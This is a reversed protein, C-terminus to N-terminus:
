IKCTKFAQRQWDINGSADHGATKYQVAGQRIVQVAVDSLQVSGPPCKNGNSLLLIGGSRILAPGHMLREGIPPTQGHRLFVRGAIDRELASQAALWGVFGAAALLVLVSGAITGVSNKKGVLFYTAEMEKMMAQTSLKESM